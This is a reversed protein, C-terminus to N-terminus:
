LGARQIPHPADSFDSGTLVTPYDAYFDGIVWRGVYATMASAPVPTTHQPVGFRTDNSLDGGHGTNGSLPQQDQTDVRWFFLQPSTTGDLLYELLTWRNVTIRPGTASLEETTNTGLMAVLFGNPDINISGNATQSDFFTQVLCRTVTPYSPVLMWCGVASIFDSHNVRGDAQEGSAAICKTSPASIQFVSNDEAISSGGGAETTSYQALAGSGEFIKAM